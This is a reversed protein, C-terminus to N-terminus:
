IFSQVIFIYNLIVSDSYMCIPTNYDVEHVAFRPLNKHQLNLEDSKTTGNSSVAETAVITLLHCLSLICYYYAPVLFIKLFDQFFDANM